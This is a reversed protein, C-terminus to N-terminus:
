QRINVFSLDRIEIPKASGSHSIKYHIAAVEPKVSVSGALTQWHEGKLRFQKQMKYHNGKRMLFILELTVLTGTDGKAALSFTSNGKGVGALDFLCLMGDAPITAIGTKLNVQTGKRLEYGDPKGDGDLDRKLSPMINGDLDTKHSYLIEAWEEQTRVPIANTTLWKLLEEYVSLYANWGGKVRQISMHSILVKVRHKAISEAIQFKMLALTQGNDPATSDARMTFRLLDPEPENFGGITSTDPGPVCSGSIYGFEKGYIAAIKEPTVFCEWGGPQIWTRPRPLGIATFNRRSCDALFRLLEDPPQIAANNALLILKSTERNPIEVKEGWFSYLTKKGDQIRIGYVKGTEPVLIKRTFALRNHMEAPYDCLVGNRIAGQFPINKPHEANLEYKFYVTKTGPNAHDAIPLSAFRQFEEASRASIQYVAHSPLHDLMLHGKEALERLTRQSEPANLNQSILSLCMRVGYREFLAGMERWQRPPKNDDFRFCVGASKTVPAEAQIQCICILATLLVAATRRNLLINKM